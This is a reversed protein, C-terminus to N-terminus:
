QSGSEGYVGSYYQGYGQISRGNNEFVKSRRFRTSVALRSIDEAVRDVM